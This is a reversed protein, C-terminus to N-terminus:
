YELPKLNDLIQVHSQLAQLLLLNYQPHSLINKTLTLAVLAFTHTPKSTKPKAKFILLVNPKLFVEFNEELTNNFVDELEDIVQKLDDMKEIKYSKTSFRDGEASVYADQDYMKLILNAPIPTKKLVIKYTKNKEGSSTEGKTVGMDKILATYETNNKIWDKIVRALSPGNKGEDLRYGARLLIRKAESLLM